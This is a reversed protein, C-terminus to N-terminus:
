YIVKSKIDFMSYFTNSFHIFRDFLNNMDMEKYKDGLTSL